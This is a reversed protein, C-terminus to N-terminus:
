LLELLNDSVKEWLGTASSDIIRVDSYNKKWNSVNAHFSKTAAATGAGGVLQLDCGGSVRGFVQHISLLASAQEKIGLSIFKDRGKELTEVPNNPRKSYISNKLKDIYLDYLSLNEEASVKDYEKKYIFNKNKKCKEDFQELHKIYLNINYDSIFPMFPMAIICRGRSSSGSICIRFGDLSLMTNIKIKRMGLPLSVEDVTKGIIRGIREKAYEKMSNEDKMAKDAYLLEVPMVMIDTNKGTRYKVLMFFTITGGRYGGYKETPLNKKRPYSGGERFSKPKQDFFGGNQGSHNCLEYRTMNANNKTLMEKVYPLMEDTKWIVNNGKIFDNTFLKSTKINYNNKIEAFRKTFKENYVNGTVINLYADKAHHLDNFTRSKLRDFEQRFESSLRAKVYVIETDPYKEKLITALAKASQSTETLQRNIFGFKEDDSFPTTRILRSYKEDSILGNKRLMEWFPKRKNQIAPSVPYTDSKDGNYKSDVLIENNIISDDKVLSQPFIHEINYKDGKIQTIDIADESYMCRGLQMFYLFLRDSQLNNDVMEGMDELQKALERVDEDRCKKYLEEIQQRRTSTRKNRQDATAGRPMEIFIKDPTKGDCAKTIEKVIELSRIIPRKVANSVFMDKLRKDLNEPNSSYYEKRLKEIEEVFTFKEKSLLMMLNNNTNWLADIITSVEGTDKNTGEIKCLFGKSLRGFDKYNLRSIYKVDDESLNSYHEKLWKTFRIKDESYTLRTIIDEVDKESLINNELIRRFDHYSKLNQNIQIDIGSLTQGDTYCNESKLFNELKRLTVKRNKMFLETYIKQKLEVPVSVGDIKLNNIENLVMFKHYLLSEKPIVNESPLYTCTNTMKDIFKQESADLDVMRDFNWPYIKGSKREIWSHESHNNLPGVFYPIRFSFVSLIKESVTIGYEDSVKLFGLYKEANKLIKKLEYWYLQYPIVRNDTDRQKPLFKRLEIKEKIEDITGIDEDDPSIGGILKKAYAYFDDNAKTSKIYASYNNKNEEKFVENYKEPIYKRIIDKFVRLDNRHQEYVQVKAESITNKGNLADVLLSWDYIAKSKKILEADDDDLSGLIESLKEDDDGLTFSPIEAYEDKFFIDKTKISSGCLSKFIAECNFPFEESSEKPAKKGDFIESCLSSYKASLSIKKRLTEGFSNEKSKEWPLAYGNNIFYDVFDYYVSSFDTLESIKEKSVENLFHGRHAVLWACAIYVLRVDHEKESKMLEDILHHITPYKEHYEVDTYDNDNFLSFPESADERCLASEKIRRFFDADKKGIEEAFLEGILKVRQQRRDLRRRASRFGRRGTNLKAEDFLTVGWMNKGHFKKLIYRENTVAYGVSDTGIDLGIFIKEESM